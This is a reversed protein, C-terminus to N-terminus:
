GAKPPADPASPETPEEGAPGMKVIGLSIANLLVIYGCTGCTVVILPYTPGGFQVGSGPAGGGPGAFLHTGIVDGIEWTTHGHFPCDPTKWHDSLWHVVTLKEEASLKGQFDPVGARGYVTGTQIDLPQGSGM